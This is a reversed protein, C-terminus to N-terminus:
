RCAEPERGAIRDDFESQCEAELQNWYETRGAETELLETIKDDLRIRLRDVRKMDM